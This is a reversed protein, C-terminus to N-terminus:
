GERRSSMKGRGERLEDKEERGKSMKGKGGM